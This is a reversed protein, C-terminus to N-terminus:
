GNLVSAATASFPPEVGPVWRMSSVVTTLWLELSDLTRKQGGFARGQMRTTHMSTTHMCKLLYDTICMFYFYAKEFFSVFYM